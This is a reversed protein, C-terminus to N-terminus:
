TVSTYWMSCFNHPHIFSRERRKGKGDSDSSEGSSVAKLSRNKTFDILALAEPSHNCRSLTSSIEPTKNGYNERVAVIARALRDKVGPIATLTNEDAFNIAIHGPLLQDTSQVEKPLMNAGPLDSAALIFM